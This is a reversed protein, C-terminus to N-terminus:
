PLLLFVWLIPLFIQLGGIRYPVLVLFFALYCAFSIIFFCLIIEAYFRYLMHIFLHGFFVHGHGILAYFHEVDNTLVLICISVAVLNWQM